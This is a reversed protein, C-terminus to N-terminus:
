TLAIAFAGGLAAVGTVLWAVYDGVHGSHLARLRALGQGLVELPRARLVRLRAGFLTLAAFGISALLTIAAYVYAHTPASYPELSPIAAPSVGDIVARAYSSGDTFRHGAHLAADAMGPVVGIALAAAILAAAPAFMVVPTRTPPGEEEPATEDVPSPSAEVPGWGLFIRAAARMVAGATL